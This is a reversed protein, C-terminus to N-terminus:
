VLGLSKVIRSHVEEITGNGNIDWLNYRPNNRYHEITPVVDTDYWDLRRKIDAEGDDSRKRLLMRRTAEERSIDIHIVIPKEFEYFDFVSDLVLAEDLKRPTGDFVIHQKGDYNRVLPNVWMYIALFEPQLKDDEYYQASLGQTFNQDKKEGGIFSRFEAGTQIYLPALSPDKENLLKMILDAQTGKGCGSRGIFIFAQKKM